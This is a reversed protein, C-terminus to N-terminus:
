NNALAKVANIKSIRDPTYYEQGKEKLKEIKRQVKVKNKATIKELYKEISYGWMKNFYLWHLPVLGIKVFYENNWKNTM